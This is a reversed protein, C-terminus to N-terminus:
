HTMTYDLTVSPFVCLRSFNAQESSSPSEKRDNIVASKVMIAATDATSTGSVNFFSLSMTDPNMIGDLLTSHRLARKWVCGFHPRGYFPPSAM